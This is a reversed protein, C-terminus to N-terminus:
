MLIRRPPPCDRKRATASETMSQVVPKCNQAYGETADPKKRSEKSQALVAHPTALLALGLLITLPKATRM